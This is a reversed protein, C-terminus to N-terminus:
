ESFKSIFQNVEEQTPISPQAGLKTVALTGADVSFRLAEELSLGRVLSVALAGVFTDGAATTDVVEVCKAPVHLGVNESSVWAGNKGLTVVVVKVGKERLKNAAVKASQPDSVSVGTLAYAESENVILYDVKSLLDDSVAYVPAPNLFVPVHQSCALNIAYEVTEIPIEFQLILAKSRVILEKVQEVTDKDVTGNAGAVVIIRNEGSDEVIITATGTSLSHKIFVYETNVGQSVLSECLTPVFADDGVCGVMSVNGGLKSAAVAQNAGKGGPILKFEQGPITEGAAPVRKTRVVLDMNISGIVIIEDM